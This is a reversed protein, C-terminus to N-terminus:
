ELGAMLNKFRNEIEQNSLEEIQHGILWEHGFPDRYRGSREGYFQDKAASLIKM